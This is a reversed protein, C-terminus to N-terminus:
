VLTHFGTPVGTLNCGNEARGALLRGLAACGNFHFARDDAPTFRIPGDLVERLLRRGDQTDRTLLGRWDGLKARVDRELAGLNVTSTM